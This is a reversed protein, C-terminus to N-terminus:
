YWRRSKEFQSGVEFKISVGPVMFFPQFLFQMANRLRVRMTVDQGSGISSQIYQKEKISIRPHNEPKDYTIDDM